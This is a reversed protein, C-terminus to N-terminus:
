KAVDVLEGWSCTSEALMSCHWQRHYWWGEGLEIKWINPCHLPLFVLEHAHLIYTPMLCMRFLVAKASQLACLCNLGFIRSKWLVKRSPCMESVYYFFLYSFSALSFKENKDEGLSHPTKSLFHCKGKGAQIVRWVPSALLSTAKVVSFFFLLNIVFAQQLVLCWVMCCWSCLVVCLAVFVFSFGPVVSSIGRHLTLEWRGSFGWRM